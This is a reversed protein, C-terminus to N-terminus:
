RSHEIPQHTWAIFAAAAAAAAASQSCPLKRSQLQETQLQLVQQLQQTASRLDQQKLQQHRTHHLSSRVLLACAFQYWCHHQMTLAWALMVQLLM